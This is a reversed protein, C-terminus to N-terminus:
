EVVPIVPLVQRVIWQPTAPLTHALPTFVTQEDHTWGVFLVDGFPSKAAIFTGVENFLAHGVGHSASQLASALASLVDRTNGKPNLMADVQVIAGRKLSGLDIVQGRDILAADSFDVNTDNTLNGALTDGAAYLNADIQGFHHAEHVAYVFRGGWARVHSFTALNHAAFFSVRGDEAYGTAEEALAVSWTNKPTLVSYSRTQPSMLAEMGIMQALQANVVDVLGVNQTLIGNPRQIVGLEYISGAVVLSILPLVFWAWENKRRRRLIVYLVPGCLFTYLGFTIEWIFLPPSHLQPFQEAAGMLALAGNTGFLDPKASLIASHLSHLITDWLLANGSWSILASSAANFGVYVVEGRDLARVAVLAKKATGVLVTANTKASGYLLPLATHLPTSSVFSALQSGYGDLVISGNVPSLASFVGLQGANPQVGGLILIGGSRVWAAIAEAQRSSLEAAVAGDLYLYRLTQLLQVSSPIAQPRIYAAVLESTGNASSVGALFQVAQPFDSVVGAVDSGEVSIGLLHVSAYTNGHEMLRLNGGHRLLAGPVGITLVTSRRPNVQVPWELVGEYPYKQGVSYVLQGQFRTKEPNTVTVRVPVWVSPDFYSQFGVGASMSITSAAAHSVGSVFLCAWLLCLIMGTRLFFRRGAM